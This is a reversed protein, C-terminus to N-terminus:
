AGLLVVTEEDSALSGRQKDKRAMSKKLQEIFHPATAWVISNALAQLAISVVDALALYVNFQGFTELTRHVLPVTWFVVFICTYKVLQSRFAEEEQNFRSLMSVPINFHKKERRM